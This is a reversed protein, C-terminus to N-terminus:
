SLSQDPVAGYQATNLSLPKRTVSNTKPDVDLYTAEGGLQGHLVAEVPRAKNRFDIPTVNSVPNQSVSDGAVNPDAYSADNSASQRADPGISQLNAYRLGGGNHGTTLSATHIGTPPTSTGNLNAEIEKTVQSKTVPNGNPDDSYPRIIERDAGQSVSQPKDMFSDAGKRIAMFSLVLAGIKLFSGVFPITGIGLRDLTSSGITSMFAIAGIAAGGDRILARGSGDPKSMLRNYTNKLWGGGAKVSSGMFSLSNNVVQTVSDNGDLSLADKVSDVLKGGSEAWDVDEGKNSVTHTNSNGTDNKDETSDSGSGSSSASGNAENEKNKKAAKEKEIKEKKLRETKQEETEVTGAAPDGGKGSVTGAPPPTVVTTPALALAGWPRLKSDGTIKSSAEMVAMYKLAEAYGNKTADDKLFLADQHFSKEEDQLTKFEKKNEESWGHNNVVIQNLNALKDHWIRVRTDVKELKPTEWDEIRDHKDTPPLPTALMSLIDGTHTDIAKAYEGSESIQKALGTRLAVLEKLRDKADVPPKGAEVTIKTNEWGKADVVANHLDITDKALKRLEAPLKDVAVTVEEPKVPQDPSTPSTAAGQTGSSKDESPDLSGFTLLDPAGANLGGFSVVDPIGFAADKHTKDDLHDSFPTVGGIKLGTVADTPIHVWKDIFDDVPKTKIKSGFIENATWTYAHIPFKISERALGGLLFDGAKLPASLIRSGIDLDSEEGTAAEIGEEGLILGGGIISTPFVVGRWTHSLIPPLIDKYLSLNTKWPLTVPMLPIRSMGQIPTWDTLYHWVKAAKEAGEPPKKFWDWEIKWQDEGKIQKQDADLNKVVNRHFIEGLIKKVAFGKPYQYWDNWGPTGLLSGGPSLRADFLLSPLFNRTRQAMDRIDYLNPSNGTELYPKYAARFDLFHPDNRLNEQKVGENIAAELEAKNVPFAGPGGGRGQSDRLRRIAIMAEGIGGARYANIIHGAIEKPDGGKGSAINIGYNELNNNEGAINDSVTETRIKDSFAAENLQWKLEEINEYAPKAFRNNAGGIQTGDLGDSIKRSYGTSPPINKDIADQFEKLPQKLSTDLPHLPSPNWKINDRYRTRLDSGAALQIYHQFAGTIAIDDTKGATKFITRNEDFIKILAEPSQTANCLKTIHNIYKRINTIQEQDLGALGKGVKIPNYKDLEQNLRDFSNKLNSFDYKHNKSFDHLLKQIEDNIKKQAADDSGSSAMRLRLDVLKTDLDFIPQIIKSSKINDDIHRIINEVFPQSVYRPPIRLWANKSVKVEPSLRFWENARQFPDWKVLKHAWSEQPKPIISPNRVDDILERAASRLNELKNQNGTKQAIEDARDLIQKETIGFRHEARAIRIALRTEESTANIGNTGITNKVFTTADTIQQPSLPSAKITPPTIAGGANTTPPTVTTSKNTNKWDIFANKGTRALEGGLRGAVNFGVAMTAGTAASLATEGVNWENQVRVTKGDAQLDTTKINQTLGDQIVNEIAGATAAKLGQKTLVDKAADMLLTKVALKTGQAAAQAAATGTGASFAGAVIGGLNIVDIASEGVATAFGGATWEAKEYAQMLYLMAVKQDNTTTPQKIWEGAAWTQLTNNQIWRAESVAYDALAQKRDEPKINEKDCHQEWTEGKHKMEYVLKAANLFSENKELDALELKDKKFIEADYGLGPQAWFEAPSLDETKKGEPPQTVTDVM